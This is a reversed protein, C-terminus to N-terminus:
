ESGGTGRLLHRYGHETMWKARALHSDFADRARVPERDPDIHLVIRAVERWDAGEAEADLLRLYTVLHEQDYSTLVLDSPASNSVDPDLPLNPM